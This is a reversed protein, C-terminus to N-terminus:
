NITTIMGGDVPGREKFWIKESHIYVKTGYRIVMGSGYDYGPYKGMDWNIRILHMRPSNDIEMNCDSTEIKCTNAQTVPVIHSWKKVGILSKLLYGAIKQRGTYKHNLTLTGTKAQMKQLRQLILPATNKTLTIYKKM